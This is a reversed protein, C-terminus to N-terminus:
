IWNSLIHYPLLLVDKQPLASANEPHFPGQSCQSRGRMDFNWLSEGLAIFATPIRAHCQYAWVVPFVLQMKSGRSILVQSTFRATKASRDLAWAEQKSAKLLLVVFKLMIREILPYQSFFGSVLSQPSIKQTNWYWNLKMSCVDHCLVSCINGVRM